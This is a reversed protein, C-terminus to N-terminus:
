SVLTTPHNRSSGFPGHSREGVSPDRVHARVDGLLDRDFAAGLARGPPDLDGVAADVQVVRYVRREAVREVDVEECRFEARGPPHGDLEALLRRAGQGLRDPSDEVGGRETKLLGRLVGSVVEIVDYSVYIDSASRASVMM